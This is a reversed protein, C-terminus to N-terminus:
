PQVLLGGRRGREGEDLGVNQVLESKQLAPAHTELIALEPVVHSISARVNLGIL